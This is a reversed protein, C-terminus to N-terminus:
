KLGHELREKYGDAHKVDLKNYCMEYEADSYCKDFSEEVNTRYVLGIALSPALYPDEYNTCAQQIRDCFAEAEGDEPTPIVIEFVDGDVRGILYEEKAEKRILGAVTKILRDSEENGFHDYVFKWDNINACIVAAPATEQMELLRGKMYTKNLLGTLADEHEGRKIRYAEQEMAEELEDAYVATERYRYHDCALAEYQLMMHEVIREALEQDSAQDMKVYLHGITRNFVRLKRGPDNVVDPEFGAFNGVEVATEGHRQTLLLEIGLVKSIDEFCAKVLSLDLLNELSYEKIHEKLREEMTMSGYAM